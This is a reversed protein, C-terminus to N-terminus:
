RRKKEKSVTLALGLAALAACYSGIEIFQAYKVAPTLGSHLPVKATFSESTWKGTMARVIGRSDVFGSVGVTSVQLAARQTEIARFRMMAFQQNSERSYGFSANNTPLTLVRAGHRVAKTVIENYAIEFCIPTGFRVTTEGIPVDIIAPETGARMDSTVVDFARTVQTVFGRYPVYEGFPVPHQKSYHAVQGVEPRWLTYDNYRTGDSEYRQTGLLLPANIRQLTGEVLQRVDADNHPNIDAASEPWLVVDAGQPTQEALNKTVTYARDYDVPARNSPVNGQVVAIRVYGDPEAGLPILACSAVLGGACAVRALRAVATGSAVALLCATVAVFAVLQTGGYPALHVLPGTVQGFALNGWPMGGFPISARLQEVGVWVAGAAPAYIWPSRGSDLLHRWFWAIVGYFLAMVSALALPAFVSGTSDSTWWLLPTFFALGAIVGRVFARSATADHLSHFFLAVGLLGLVWSECASFAGYLAAGACASELVRLPIM